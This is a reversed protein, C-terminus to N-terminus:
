SINPNITNILQNMHHIKIVEDYGKVTEKLIDTGIRFNNIILSTSLYEHHFNQAGKASKIEEIIKNYEGELYYKQVEEKKDWWLDQKTVLTIMWLKEKSDKIRHKIEEIIEIERELRNKTFEEMFKENTMNNSYITNGKPEGNKLYKIQKYNISEGISHYGNSVINIIGTAKGSSIIRYLEPWFREIRWTQAPAVVYSGIINNELKFHEIKPSQEYELNHEIGTLVQGLTTKGTGSAGFVIIQLKGNIIWNCIMKLKPIIGNSAGSITIISSVAGLTDLFFEAM